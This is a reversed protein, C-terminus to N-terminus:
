VLNDPVHAIALSAVLLELAGLEEIHRV